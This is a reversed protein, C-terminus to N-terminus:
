AMRADPCGPRRSLGSRSWCPASQRDSRGSVDRWRPRDLPSRVAARRPRRAGSRGGSGRSCLRADRRRPRGQGRCANPIGFGPVDIGIIRVGNIAKPLLRLPVGSATPVCLNTVVIADYNEGSRRAQLRGRSHGRVAQRHRADRLQVARLRCLTARWLLALHLDARLRLLGLGVPRHRHAEYAPRRAALRVGPVHEPASRAPGQPYDEAYRELIESKGSSQVAAAARMAAKGGHCGAGARRSRSAPTSMVIDAADRWIHPADTIWLEFRTTSSKSPRSPCM